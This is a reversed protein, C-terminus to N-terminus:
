QASYASLRNVRGAQLSKFFVSSPLYHTQFLWGLAFQPLAQHQIVEQSVPHISPMVNGFLVTSTATSM